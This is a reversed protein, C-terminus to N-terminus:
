GSAPPRGSRSGHRTRGAGRAGRVAAEGIRRLMGAFVLEHIPWIGYWYALGLLGVPDFVATQHITAGGAAPRVEFQLWARGPLRMEARLRLIRDPDYEEVRWCDLAEGPALREPDRRGRRMGPGGVALDMAGRIRWLFNAFYWGTDGGIRRIPAFADAPGVPVRRARADVLRTGHRAGGYPRGATVPLRADSWRTQAFAHDENALARAIAERVSRPRVSPFLAEAQRRDAVTENRLGELLERGVRAYVPTVLGLWLSSLRPTLVPVPLMVRRLGRQRAYERMLDGYSVRDPGGIEVVQSGTDDPLDIAAVLYETVDEIAIPQTRTAVWRPTVMAPLRDVLARVLEFSLSGSGIVVSSRLEVTPVGSAALERGVEQRSALHPSLGEGQGLGGLYVIRGVGAKAAAMGFDRAAIADERRYERSRGMSHVLYVAVRVGELAADLSAPDRVDGAVIETTDATRAELTEPRRTLCRLRRGQHELAAVLRGGVYGTAGTVLIRPPGAAPM